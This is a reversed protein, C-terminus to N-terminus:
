NPLNCLRKANDSLVLKAIRRADDEDYVNSEVFIRLVEQLEQRAMKAGVWHIEPIIVGDSGYAVRAPPALDFIQTIREIAGPVSAFSTIGSLDLYVNKLSNAFFAAEQCFPYGAHVLVIRTNWTVPDNLFDSMKQPNCDKFLIDREGMGTHLHLSVGLEAALRTAEYVYWDRISKGKRTPANKVFAFDRRVDGLSPKQIDLGTRYAIVSKFALAGREKVASRLSREFLVVFDEFSSSKDVADQFIPEVRTVRKIWVPCRAEFEEFVVHKLEGLEPHLGVDETVVETYGDDVILGEIGGDEFLDRVYQFYDQGSRKNRAELVEAITPRCGLFRAMRHIIQRGMPTFEALLTNEPNQADQHTFGGLNM